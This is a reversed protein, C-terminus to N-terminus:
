TTTIGDDSAVPALTLRGTAVCLHCKIPWANEPKIETATATASATITVDVGGGAFSYDYPDRLRRSDRQVSLRGIAHPEM